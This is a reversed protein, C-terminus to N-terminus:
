CALVCLRCPMLPLTCTAHCVYRNLLVEYVVTTTCTYLSDLSGLVDAEAEGEISVAWRRPALGCGASASAPARASVERQGHSVGRAGRSEM